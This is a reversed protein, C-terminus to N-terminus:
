KVLSMRKVASYNGASIRYFYTGSPLNSADFTVSHRGVSQNENVLTVVERGLIDYVKLSAFGATPLSYEITSTPNFPNPYNQSLSPKSSVKYELEIANSYEFQGDIDEQKLRYYITGAPIFRDRDTFVYDNPTNSNGHGPVFGINGWTIRDTSREIEFGYNNVETETRWRLEVENGNLLGSFSVLEVPFPSEPITGEWKNDSKSYLIVVQNNFTEKTSTVNNYSGATLTSVGLFSIGTNTYSWNYKIDGVGGASGSSTSTYVVFIKHNTDDLLAIPRTAGSNTVDYISWTGNTQRKLLAITPDSGSDYSTKVAAYITGDSSVAFNIHDDSFSGSVGPSAIEDTSWNTPDTESDLHYKFHFKDDNQNSWLVGIKDGGFATIDCIDDDKVDSSNLKYRNTNSWSTYPYDSWWIYIQTTGASGLWMRGNSDIDIVATEAGSDLQIDILDPQVTWPEYTPPSGAVFQVSVLKAIHQSDQYLIIHTIDDVAKTDAKLNTNSDLRFPLQTWTSGDLRYIYTGDGDFGSKVPIVAWWYGGYYWVKSQPKEGSNQEAQVTSLQAYINVSLASILIALLILFIKNRLIIM